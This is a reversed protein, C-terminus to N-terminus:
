QDGHRYLPQLRGPLRRSLKQYRQHVPYYGANNFFALGVEECTRNGGPNAGEILYPTVGGDSVPTSAQNDALAPIAAVLALLALLVVVPWPHSKIYQM